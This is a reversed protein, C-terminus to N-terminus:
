ADSPNYKFTEVRTEIRNWVLSYSNISREKDLEYMGRFRYLINGLNDKVRAFVIQKSLENDINELYDETFKKYKETKPKETIITQDDSESNKWDDNEYLKPFWLGIDPYQTHKAGAKQYGKYNHGFCNCGDAITHFAVNDKIDIYGLKIYTDPNFESVIDWPKFGLKEKKLNQLKQVVLDIQNNIDHITKNTNCDIRTPADWNTANVIDEARIKDKEINESELHHDEDIEVQFHFQPFYLDVLAYRGNPRSVYQQTVFKIDLDDLLNIIRNVVYMEYKKKKTRGLQKIIYETKLDM